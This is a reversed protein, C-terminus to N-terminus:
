GREGGAREVATGAGAVVAARWCSLDWSEPGTEDRFGYGLGGLFTVTRRDALYCWVRLTGGGLSHADGNMVYYFDSVFGRRNSPGLFPEQLLQQARFPLNGLFGKTAAPLGPPGSGPEGMGDGRRAARGDMGVTVGARRFSSEDLNRSQIRHARRGDGRVVPDAVVLARRGFAVVTIKEQDEYAWWDVLTGLRASVRDRVAPSLREWLQERTGGAAPAFSLGVPVHPSPTAPRSILEGHDSLNIPLWEGAM